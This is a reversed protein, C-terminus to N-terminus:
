LHTQLQQRRFLALRLPSDILRAQFQLQAHNNLHAEWAVKQNHRIKDLPRAGVVHRHPRPAAGAGPGQHGIHEANGGEIRNRVFKQELTKQIGLTHRQRIEIHVEADFPAVPYYAVDGVAVTVFLHRLNDGVAGHRGLGHHAIHSTDHIM